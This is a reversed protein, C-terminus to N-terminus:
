LCLLSKTFKNIVSIRGNQLLVTDEIRIGGYGQMYIGPEITFVMNNGILDTSDMGLRPAEHVSLGLGHGLGHGFNEAYGAQEIVKRAYADAEHGSINATINNIATLQAALVIDYVKRYIEDIKGLFITRTMDSCYGSYRAGVDILVPDGNAIERQGPKAHPMSTKPGSCVIIKFPLDESGNERLHKEMTWAIQQETIGPRIISLALDFVADSMKVAKTICAIEEDDKFSRLSEVMNKCPMFHFGPKKKQLIECLKSYTSYSLYDEEFGLLNINNDLLIPMLWQEFNGKIQMINVDSSITEQRAQETYRFDVALCSHKRDAILWGDSGTFGTLYCINETNGILLGDLETNQLSGRLNNIRNDYISM